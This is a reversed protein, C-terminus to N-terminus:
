HPIRSDKANYSSQPQLSNFRVIQKEMEEPSITRTPPQDQTSM